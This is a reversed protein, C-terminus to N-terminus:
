YRHVHGKQLYARQPYDLYSSIMLTPGVGTHSTNKYFPPIQVSVCCPLINISPSPLSQVISAALSYGPQADVVHLCPLPLSSEGECSEAPVWGASM